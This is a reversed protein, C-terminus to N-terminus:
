AISRAATGTRDNVSRAATRRSAHRMAAARARERASRRRDRRSTAARRITVGRYRIGGRVARAGLALWVCVAREALWAPALLSALAPLRERGGHRRRGLEAVGIAGLALVAPARWGFRRTALAAAPLLGLEVVLRVPQALDDYAQRVRQGAFGELTPPLRDVFLDPASRVRGGNARITRILELNEFLVDGDYGDAIASRRVVMTGPYDHGWARNMLSRATDWVAHWPMPSRFVNQPIVLDADHLRAVATRLSWPDYRVDDDAIVLVDTTTLDVGTMVGAVKGNASRRRPDVPVHRCVVGFAGRHRAFTTASSGDVVVLDDVECRIRDLYGALGAHAGPPCGPACALPLLYGVTPGAPGGGREM